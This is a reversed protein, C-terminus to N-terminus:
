TENKPPLTKILICTYATVIVIIIGTMLLREEATLSTENAFVSIANNVSHAIICPILSGGRHFIIVFLFGCAIAGIIQCLNEILEMGSGNFLNLIHGIGFTISSIIIASKIGEKALAKFLLGRFILEELFGVCFMNLIYFVTDVTPLNTAFGGWLNRSVFVLLPIYWLFRSPPLPTRCLGYNTLLGNERIWRFLFFAMAANLVLTVSSDIRLTASVANALSNAVCYIGIWILAFTLESKAFLRNLVKNMPKGGTRVPYFIRNSPNYFLFDIKDFDEWVM